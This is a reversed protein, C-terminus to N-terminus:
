KKKKDRLYQRRRWLFGFAFAGVAGAATTAKAAPSIENMIEKIEEQIGHIDVEFFKKGSSKKGSQEPPTADVQQEDADAVTVTKQTM